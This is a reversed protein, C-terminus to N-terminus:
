NGSARLDLSVKSGRDFNLYPKTSSTYRFCLCVRYIKCTTGIPICWLAKLCFSLKLLAENRFLNEAKVDIGFQRVFM